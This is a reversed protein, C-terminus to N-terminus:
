EDKFGEELEMIRKKYYVLIISVVLALVFAPIGTIAIRFLDTFTLEYKM